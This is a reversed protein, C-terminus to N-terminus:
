HRVNCGGAGPEGAGGKADITIENETVEEGLMRTTEAFRKDMAAERQLLTGQAQGVEQQLANSAAAQRQSMVGQENAVANQFEARALSSAQHLMHSEATNALQRNELQAETIEAQQRLQARLQQIEHESAQQEASRRSLQDVESRIQMEAGALKQNAELLDIRVETFNREVAFGVMPNSSSAGGVTPGTTACQFPPAGAENALAQARGYSSPSFSTARRRELPSKKTKKAKQAPGFSGQAGYGEAHVPIPPLALAQLGPPLGPVETQAVQTDQIMPMTADQTAMTSEPGAFIASHGGIKTGIRDTVVRVLIEYFNSDREPGLPPGKRLHSVRIPM